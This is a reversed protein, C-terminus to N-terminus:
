MYFKLADPINATIFTQWSFVAPFWIELHIPVLINDGGRTFEGVYFIVNLM